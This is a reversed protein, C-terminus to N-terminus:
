RPTYKEVVEKLHVNLNKNCSFMSRAIAFFKKFDESDPRECVYEYSEIITLVTQFFEEWDDKDIEATLIENVTILIRPDLKDKIPLTITPQM